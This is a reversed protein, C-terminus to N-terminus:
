LKEVIQGDTNIYFDKKSIEMKVTDIIEQSASDMEFSWATDISHLTHDADITFYQVQLFDYDRGCWGTMFNQDSLKKGALDYIVVSPILMDGAYTVLIGAHKENKFILGVLRAGEPLYKKILENESDIEPYDCCKECSLSLPLIIKPLMSTFRSFETDTKANIESNVLSSDHDSTDALQDKTQQSCNLLIVALLIIFPRM